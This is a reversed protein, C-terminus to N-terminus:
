SSGEAAADAAWAFVGGASKVQEFLFDDEGGTENSSKLFWPAGPELCLAIRDLDLLANGCGYFKGIPGSVGSRKRSFFAEFYGRRVKVSEPVVGRVPGFVVTAEFQERTKLLNDLWGECATEDDDIFAILPTSAAKVGANRANAVGPEGAWVYIVPIPSNDGLERVAAEATREPSNDAIVIECRSIADDPLALVSKVARRLGDNRRFTPIVISALLNARKENM